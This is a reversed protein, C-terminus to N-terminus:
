KAEAVSKKSIVAGLVVFAGVDFVYLSEDNVEPRVRVSVGDSAVSKSDTADVLEAM